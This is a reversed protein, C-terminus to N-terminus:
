KGEWRAPGTSRTDVHTFTKYKGLGFKNPYKAALYAHVEDPAVGDVTIDAARSWLHQSRPSGGVSWSANYASCRSASNIRVPKDFYERIETLVELLEADVTDFGCGCKCAFETRNFYNNLQTM